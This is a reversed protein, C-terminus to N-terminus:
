RVGSLRSIINRQIESTGSYITGGMSDRLDSAASHEEMFGYGGRIQVADLCAQKCSESVFLKAISAEAAAPLRREKLWAAKRVILRALELNVRMDAVKNSVSQFQGITQGFQRRQTTYKVSEELVSQMKGVQTAFLLIREWEISDSFIAWGTGERGLRHDGPVECDRFYLM